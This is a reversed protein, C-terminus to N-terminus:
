GQAFVTTHHLPASCFAARDEQTDGSDSGLSRSRFAFHDASSSSDSTPAHASPSGQMSTPLPLQVSSSRSSSRRAELQFSSPSYFRKGRRMKCTCAALRLHLAVLERLSPQWVVQYSAFGTSRCSRDEGHEVWTALSPRRTWDVDTLGSERLLRASDDLLIGRLENDTCHRLRPLPHLVSSRAATVSTRSSLTPDIIPPRPRRNDQYM